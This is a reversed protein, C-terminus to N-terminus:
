SCTPTGGASLLSLSISITTGAMRLAPHEAGQLQMVLPGLWGYLSALTARLSPCSSVGRLSELALPLPAVDALPVAGCIRTVTASAPQTTGTAALIACDYRDKTSEALPLDNLLRGTEDLIRLALTVSDAARVATLRVAQVQEPTPQSSILGQGTACGSVALALALILGRM